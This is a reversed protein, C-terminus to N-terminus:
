REKAQTAMGLKTIGSTEVVDLVEIV